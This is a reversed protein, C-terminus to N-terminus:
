FITLSVLVITTSSSSNFIYKLQHFHNLILHLIPGRQNIFFHISGFASDTRDDIRYLKRDKVLSKIIIHYAIKKPDPVIPVQYRSIRLDPGPFLMLNGNKFNQMM